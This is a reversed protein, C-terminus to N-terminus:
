RFSSFSFTLIYKKCIQSKDVISKHIDDLGGKTFATVDDGNEKEVSGEPNDAIGVFYWRSALEHTNDSSELPHQSPSRTNFDGFQPYHGHFENYARGFLSIEQTSHPFTTM